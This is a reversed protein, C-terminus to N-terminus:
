QHCKSHMSIGHHSGSAWQQAMWGCGDGWTAAHYHVAGHQLSRYVIGPLQFCRLEQMALMSVPCTVWQAHKPHKWTRGIDLLKVCGNFLFPGTVCIIYGCVKM